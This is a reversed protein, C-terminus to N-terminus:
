DCTGLFEQFWKAVTEPYEQHVMHTGRPVVGLSSEEIRQHLRMTESLPILHDRDGSLILTPYAIRSAAQGPYNSEDYNSWMTTTAEFLRSFDAEPNLEEYRSVGDPFRERWSKETLREYIPRVQEAPPDAHTGITVLGALRRVGRIAIWLGTIGGDSHGIVIPDSLELHQMLSEADKALLEYSLPQDGLTSAGHGRTDLLTVSCTSLYPVLPAFEELNGLGGHLLLLERSGKREFRRYYLTADALKLEQGDERLPATAIRM